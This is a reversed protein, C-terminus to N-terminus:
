CVRVGLRKPPIVMNPLGRTHLKIFSGGEWTFKEDVTTSQNTELYMTTDARIFWHSQSKNIATAIKQSDLDKPLNIYRYDKLQSEYYPWVLKQYTTVYKNTNFVKLEGVGILLEQFLNGRTARKVFEEVSLINNEAAEAITRRNNDSPYMRKLAYWDIPQLPSGAFMAQGPNANMSWAMWCQQNIDDMLREQYRQISEVGRTSVNTNLKRFVRLDKDSSRGALLQSILWQTPEPSALTWKLLDRKLGLGFGGVATPLHIAAFARANVSKRPLLPGMREIFLARISDKKTYTWYRDDNPLWELCGGLQGSKGIAVNKNDKAIMTSQGRTLLRVKVSDVIISHSYDDQDFPKGYKLNTLNLLRECYKVCKRSYGHKDESIHSGCSRHISTISELYPIPGRALHDDGGIHVYRWDRYPSPDHSFLLKDNNTYRIFALEEVALNLLTLSPKAIAEGMMIGTKSLVTPESFDPFVVLRPGILDMVLNIYEPRVELGYGRIFSRLMVKTLNWNQVNTADKLDSSLVAEDTEFHTERKSGDKLWEVNTSRLKRLGHVKLRALGKAAEFAQDQRHFSSFVSPHFKMAEVLLHALPAQLINLWYESLTVVRAKNGLEPVVEARLIPTPQSEKWAVYMIQEGLTEDLGTFRDELGRILSVRSMFERSTELPENRFITKWRPIGGIHVAKGFPTEEEYSFEPIVTLVRRIADAVAGAQAGKRISHSYEGSSTVSIHLCGPTIKAPRIKRCISGIRRAAQGMQVITRSDPEFDDQIVKAFAKLSKKITKAGMFPMQRTATLHALEQMRLMQDGERQLIRKNVSMGNLRWFINDAPQQVAVGETESFTHFLWSSYAKWMDVLDSLNTAGVHFIKRVCDRLLLQDPSSELFSLEDALWYSDVLGAIFEQIRNLQSEQRDVLIKASKYGLGIDRTLIVFLGEAYRVSRSATNGFQQKRLKQGRHKEDFLSGSPM